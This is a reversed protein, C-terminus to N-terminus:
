VKEWRRTYLNYKKIVKAPSGVAVCYDPINRTVVSNAGIVVGRGITIDGVLVSNIGIYADDKICVKQGKQVIGQYIVPVGIENYKHDCDTIYVNPSFLVHKGITCENAISIRMRQGIETGEDIIMKGFCWIDVDPRIVVNQKLIINKGGKINCRKGIYVGDGSLIIGNKYARLFGLLNKVIIKVKGMM